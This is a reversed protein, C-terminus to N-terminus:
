KMKTGSVRPKDIRTAKMSVLYTRVPLSSYLSIVLNQPLSKRILKARPTTVPMVRSNWNPM